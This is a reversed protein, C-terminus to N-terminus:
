CCRSYSGHLADACLPWLPEDRTLLAVKTKAKISLDRLGSTDGGIPFHEWTQNSPPRQTQVRSPPNRADSNELPDRNSRTVSELSRSNAKWAAPALRDGALALCHVFFEEAVVHDYRSISAAPPGSWKHQHQLRLLRQHRHQRENVGRRPQQDHQSARAQHAGGVVTTAMQAEGGHHRDAEGGERAVM